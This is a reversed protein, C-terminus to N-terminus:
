GEKGGAKRSAAAPLEEEEEEARKAALSGEELLQELRIGYEVAPDFVFRVEPSVRLGLRGGLIRRVFGSAHQLAAMTKEQESKDALVSVYVKAIRLDGSVRVRTCTALGVRPDKLERQLIRAIEVRIREAVREPRIRAADRPM